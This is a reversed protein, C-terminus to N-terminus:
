HGRRSIIAGAPRLTTKKFFALKAAGIGLAIDFFKATTFCIRKKGFFRYNGNFPSFYIAHFIMEM